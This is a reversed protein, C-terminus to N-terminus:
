TTTPPGPLPHLLANLAWRERLEELGFSKGGLGENDCKGCIFLSFPFHAKKSAFFFPFDSKKGWGEKARWQYQLYLLVSPM